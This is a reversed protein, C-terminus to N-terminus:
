YNTYRYTSWVAGVKSRHRGSTADAGARSDAVLLGEGTRRKPSHYYWYGDVKYGLRVEVISLCNSTLNQTLTFATNGSLLSSSGYFHCGSGQYWTVSTAASAQPATATLALTFAALVTTWRRIM